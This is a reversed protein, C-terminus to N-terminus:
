CKPWHRLCNAHRASWSGVTRNGPAVAVREQLAALIQGEEEQEWDLSREGVVLQLAESAESTCCAVEELGLALGCAAVVGDGATEKDQREQKCTAVAGPEEVVGEVKQFAVAGVCHSGVEEVM